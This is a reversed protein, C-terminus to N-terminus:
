SEPVFHEGGILDIGASKAGQSTIFVGEKEEVVAILSTAKNEGIDRIVQKMPGKPSTINGLGRIPNDRAEAWRGSATEPIGQGLSKVLFGDGERGIAQVPNGIGGTSHIDKSLDSNVGAAFSIVLDGDVRIAKGELGQAIINDKVKIQAGLRIGGDSGITLQHTDGVIDAGSSDANHLCHGVGLGIRMGDLELNGKHERSLDRHIRFGPVSINL